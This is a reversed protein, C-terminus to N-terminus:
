GLVTGQTVSTRRNKDKRIKSYLMLSISLFVVAMVICMIRPGIMAESMYKNYDSLSFVERDNTSLSTILWVWAEDLQIANKNELRFFITEGIKLDQIDAIEINEMISSGIMFCSVYENMYIEASIKDGKDDIQVKRVTATYLTTTKDTHKDEGNMVIFIGVMGVFFLMFLFVFFKKTNFRKM